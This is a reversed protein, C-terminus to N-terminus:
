PRENRRYATIVTYGRKSRKDHRIYVGVSHTRRIYPEAFADPRFAERGTPSGFRRQLWVDKMDGSAVLDVKAADAELVRNVFDNASELSDFSGQADKAITVFPTDVRM